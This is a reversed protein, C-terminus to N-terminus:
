SSKRHKFLNKYYQISRTLSVPYIANAANHKHLIFNNLVLTLQEAFRAQVRDNDKPKLTKWYNKMQHITLLAYFVKKKRSFGIQAIPYKYHWYEYVRKIV